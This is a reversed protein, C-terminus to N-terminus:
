SLNAVFTFSVDAQMSDPVAPGVLTIVNGPIFDISTPFTVTIAEPSPGSFDVSGIADDDKFLTWSVDGGAPIGQFMVSDVLGSPFTMDDAVVYQLVTESPNPQGSVFLALRIRDSLWETQYPSESSKVLRQHLTGGAPFQTAPQELILTYLDHGFGDTAFASFTAASTHQVNVLYLRGNNSTVDFPAYGILAQWEGRPHWQSSPITLPGLVRHDTLHVFLQDGNLVMYDIGAFSDQHDELAAVASYLKWFNLDILVASLDSGLGDGWRFQDETRFTLSEM